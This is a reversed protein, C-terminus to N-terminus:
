VGLGHCHAGCPQYAVTDTAHRYEAVVATSSYSRAQQPRDDFVGVFGSDVGQHQVGLGMGQGKIFLKAKNNTSLFKVIHANRVM